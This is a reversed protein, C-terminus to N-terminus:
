LLLRKLLFTFLLPNELNYTPSPSPIKGLREYRRVNVFEERLMWVRLRVRLV